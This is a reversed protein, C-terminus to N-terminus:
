YLCISFNILAIFKALAITKGTTMYLHSLQIMLFASCQLISAKSNHHQLLSKFTEQVVLLDFWDTRFSILRSYENSPSSASAGISQGGSAFVQSMPFSGSEPLSQSFSFFPTVSSSITPYFCRSLPCLNSCVRPSLSPCPLRAHQLGHPRWLVPCSKTVSCWCYLSNAPSYVPVAVISFLISM